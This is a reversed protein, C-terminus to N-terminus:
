NLNSPQSIAPAPALDGVMDQPQSFFRFLLSKQRESLNLIKDTLTDIAPSANTSVDMPALEDEIDSLNLSVAEEGDSFEWFLDDFQDQNEFFGDPMEIDIREPRQEAAVRNYISQLSDGLKDAAKYFIPYISGSANILYSSAGGCAFVELVPTTAAAFDVGLAKLLVILAEKALAHYTFALLGGAALSLALAAIVKPDKYLPLSGDEPTFAGFFADLCEIVFTGNMCYDTVGNISSLSCIAIKAPMETIGFVDYLGTCTMVADSASGLVGLTFGLTPSVYASFQNSYEMREGALVERAKKYTAMGEATLRGLGVFGATIGSLAKWGTPNVSQTFEYDAPLQKVFDYALVSDSFASYAGMISSSIVAAAEKAPTLVPWDTPIGRNMIIEYTDNIGEITFRSNIGLEAFFNCTTAAAIFGAPKDLLGIATEAAERIATAIPFVYSAYKFHEPKPGCGICGVCGPCRPANDHPAAIDDLLPASEAAGTVQGAELIDEEYRAQM